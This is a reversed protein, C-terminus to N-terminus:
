FIDLYYNYDFYYKNTSCVNNQHRLHTIAEPEGKGGVVIWGIVRNVNDVRTVQTGLVLCIEM